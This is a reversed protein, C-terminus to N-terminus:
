AAKKLHQRHVPKKTKKKSGKGAHALSEQLVAVLDIVKNAHKKPGPGSPLEKGGSEIKKHIMEMIAHRYDDTYKSPDWNGTMKNVLESAM